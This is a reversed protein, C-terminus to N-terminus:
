THKIKRTKEAPRFTRVNIFNLAAHTVNPHWKKCLVHAQRSGARRCTMGDMM